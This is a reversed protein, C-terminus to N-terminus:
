TGNGLMTLGAAARAKQGGRKLRATEAAVMAKDEDDMEVQEGAHLRRMLGHVYGRDAATAAREEDLEQNFKDGVNGNQRAMQEVEGRANPNMNALVQNAANESPDIQGDTAMLKALETLGEAGRVMQKAINSPAAHVQETLQDINKGLRQELIECAKGGFKLIAGTAVVAGIGILGNVILANLAEPNTSEGVMKILEPNMFDIANVAASGKFLGIIGTAISLQITSGLGKHIISNCLDQMSNQNFGPSTMAAGMDNATLGTGRMMGMVQGVPAFGPMMMLFGQAANLKTDSSVIGIMAERVTMDQGNITVVEDLPDALPDAAAHAPQDPANHLASYRSAGRSSPPPLTTAESMDLITRVRIYRIILLLKM